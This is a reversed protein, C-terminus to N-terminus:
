LNCIEQISVGFEQILTMFLIFTLSLWFTILKAYWVIPCILVAVVFLMVPFSITIFKMFKFKKYWLNEIFRRKKEYVYKINSMKYENISKFMLLYFAIISFSFIVGVISTSIINFLVLGASIGMFLRSVIKSKIINKPKMFGFFFISTFHIMVSMLLNNFNDNSFKYVLFLAAVVFYAYSIQVWYNFLEFETRKQESVNKAEKRAKRYEDLSFIM